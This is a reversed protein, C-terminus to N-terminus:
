AHQAPRWEHLAVLIGPKGVGLFKGVGRADLHPDVLLAPLVDARFGRDRGIHACPGSTM